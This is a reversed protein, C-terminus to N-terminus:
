TRECISHPGKSALSSKIEEPTELNLLTEVYEKDAVIDKLNKIEM